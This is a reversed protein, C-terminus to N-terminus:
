LGFHKDCFINVSLDTRKEDFVFRHFSIDKLSELHSTLQLWSDEIEKDIEEDWQMKKEWTKRMLLRGRITVSLYLSLPDFIKSINSLLDRKTNVPTLEFDSLKLNDTKFNYFYGLVREDDCNHSSTRQGNEMPQFLDPHNSNFSCLYFGGEEMRSVSKSYVEKLEEFSSSTCIYNDVYFRSLLYRSVLDDPYQSVHYKIIYNLIFPSAALGFCISTYRYTHLKGNEEWFICFRNRDEELKLKIQLFAKKIDGIIVYKNSRFICLLGFLSGMLDVGPYSAENLSPYDGVKLSCNLVPRIKTTTQPQLKIIPRHPIWVYRHYDAPSVTIEELIGERVQDRFIDGYAKAHGQSTLRKSVRSLSALAIHHNSPVNNVVEPYWSLEVFYKGRKFEISDEFKKILLADISGLNDDRIGISELSYLAELGLDLDTDDSHTFLLPDFYSPSPNLISNVIHSTYSEAASSM